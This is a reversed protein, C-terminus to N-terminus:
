NSNRIAAAMRKFNKVIDGFDNQEFIATILAFEQNPLMNNDIWDIKEGLILAYIDGLKDGAKNVLMPIANELDDLDIENKEGALDSVIEGIIKFTKKYKKRVLPEIKFTKAKEGRGIEIEEPEPFLAKEQKEAKNKSM